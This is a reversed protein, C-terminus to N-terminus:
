NINGVNVGRADRSSCVAFSKNVGRLIDGDVLLTRLFMDSWTLEGFFM